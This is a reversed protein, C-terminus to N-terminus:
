DQYTPADEVEEDDEEEADEEEMVADIQQNINEDDHRESHENTTTSRAAVVSADPAPSSDPNEIKLTNSFCESSSGNDFQVMWKKPGVACRVIGFIRKRIRRPVKPNPNPILEGHSGSVRCGIQIRALRGTNRKKGNTAPPVAVSTRRGGGTTSSSSSGSGAGSTTNSSSGSGSGSTNVLHVDCRSLYDEPDGSWKLWCVMCSAKGYVHVDNHGEIIICSEAMEFRCYHSTPIVGCYDCKKSELAGCAKVKIINTIGGVATTTVETLPLPRVSSAVSSSHHPVEASASPNTNVEEAVGMTKKEFRNQNNSGYV